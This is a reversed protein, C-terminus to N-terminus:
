LVGLKRYFDRKSLYKRLFICLLKAFEIKICKPREKIAGDMNFIQM